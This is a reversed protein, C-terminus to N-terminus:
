KHWVKCGNSFQKFDDIEKKRKEKEKREAEDKKAQKVKEMREEEQKKLDPNHIHLILDLPIRPGFYLCLLTQTASSACMRQGYPRINEFSQSKFSSMKTAKIAKNLLITCYVVYFM